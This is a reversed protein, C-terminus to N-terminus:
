CCRRQTVLPVEQIEAHGHKSLLAWQTFTYTDSMSQNCRACLPILNDPSMSGGKSDPINHGAQFDWVNIVNKCWPTSCKSEFSKGFDRLWIQERIAKPIAKRKKKDPSPSPWPHVKGM